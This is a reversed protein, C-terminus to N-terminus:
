YESSYSDRFDSVDDDWSEWLDFDDDLQRKHRRKQKDTEHLDDAAHDSRKRKNKM